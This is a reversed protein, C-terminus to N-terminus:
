ALNQIILYPFHIMKSYSVTYNQPLDEFHHARVELQGELWEDTDVQDSTYEWVTTIDGAQGEQEEGQQVVALSSM